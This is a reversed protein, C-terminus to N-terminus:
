QWIISDSQEIVEQIDNEYESEVVRRKVKLTPTLFNNEVKWTDKVVLVHSIKEYNKLEQNVSKLTKKLRNSIEDKSKGRADNTLSVVMVNSPLARGVLCLHEIHNNDSFAKEIPTPTIFEGKQNKFNESLRGLIKVRKMDDIDVIDGTRLWGEQTFAEETAEPNKYYEKMLCPCHMLLEDNEGKKIEVELRPTGVYGPKREDPLSLTAYALNETQGYGELIPIDLAEFFNYISLPLHAAGSVNGESRSLGLQKKVKHKVVNSLIPMKLLVHPLGSSIKQEIKDKFVGWIRPVAAFLSPEVERLNDAFTDLSQVFSVDSSIAVSGLQIASREYVHALPLYSLLHYHDLEALRKIDEPFIALYNAISQHTYVAGKPKGSTGSSYIITYVEEPSPHHVEDLPETGLVDVWRYQTMMDQHYDFAATILDDPIYQRVENHNDLKGLFVLKVEAHDLVYQISEEHQNPFLPVNVMGALTIGFDTIFWEACNKSFISVHSGKKLGLKLLFQAVQRAQKLTKEWSYEHWKGQRPQKLYIHDAQEKEHNLLLDVISSGKM